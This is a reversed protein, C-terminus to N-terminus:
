IRDTTQGLPTFLNPYLTSVSWAGTVFCIPSSANASRKDVRHREVAQFKPFLTTSYDARYTKGDTWTWAKDDPSGTDVVIPVAAARCLSLRACDAPRM